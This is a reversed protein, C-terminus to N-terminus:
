GLGVRGWVWGLGVDVLFGDFVLGVWVLWFDILFSGLGMLFDVLFRVLGVLVGGFVILFWGLGLWFGDFM